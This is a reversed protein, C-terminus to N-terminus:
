GDSPRPRTIIETFPEVMERRFGTIAVFRFGRVVQAINPDHMLRAVVKRGHAIHPKEDQEIVRFGEEFEPGWQRFFQITREIGYMFLREVTLMSVIKELDDHEEHFIGLPIAEPTGLELALDHCMHSHHQEDPFMVDRYFEREEATLLPSAGLRFALGAARAETATQLWIAQCALNQIRDAM